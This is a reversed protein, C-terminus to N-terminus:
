FCFVIICFLFCHIAEYRLGVLDVTFCHCCALTLISLFVSIAAHNKGNPSLTGQQLMLSYHISEVVGVSCVLQPRIGFCTANMLNSLVTNV